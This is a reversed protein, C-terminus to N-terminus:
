EEYAPLPKAGKMAATRAREEAAALEEVEAKAETTRWAGLWPWAGSRLVSREAELRAAQLGEAATALAELRGDPERAAPTKLWTEDLRAALGFRAPRPDDEDSPPDTFAARAYEAPPKASYPVLAFDVRAEGSTRGCAEDGHAVCLDRAGLLDLLLRPEPEEPTGALDGLLVYAGPSGARVTESLDVVQALRKAASAPDAGPTLRASYVDAEQVGARVRARLVGGGWGLNRSSSSIVAGRSLVALGLAPDSAAAKYGGASRLYEVDEDRWVEQFAAVDSAEAKLREGLAARRTQWGQHVRRPGGANLTLVSLVLAATKM